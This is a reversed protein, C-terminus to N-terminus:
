YDLLALPYLLVELLFVRAHQVLECFRGLGGCCSVFNGLLGV